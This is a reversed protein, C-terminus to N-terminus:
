YSDKHEHKQSLQEILWPVMDPLLEIWAQAHGRGPQHLLVRGDGCRWVELSVPRDVGTPRLGDGAVRALEM